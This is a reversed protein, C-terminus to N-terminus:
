QGAKTAFHWSETPETAKFGYRPGNAVMWQQEPSGTAGNGIDIALGYEHISTGPKATTPECKQPSLEYIAHRSAGCNKKRMAIQDSRSRWSSSAQLEIGDKAAAEVMANVDPALCDVVRFGRKAMATQEKDVTKTTAESCEKWHSADAPIDAGLEGGFLAAWTNPGVVGDATLRHAAQYDRVAATTAPGFKGDIQLRSGSENLLAQAAKVVAPDAGPKARADVLETMTRPGAVGDAELGASRQFKRVAQETHKGFIGDGETAAGRATLLHQLAAIRASSSSRSVRLEAGASSATPIATPQAAVQPDDVDAGCGTLLPLAM